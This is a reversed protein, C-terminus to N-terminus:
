IRRSCTLSLRRMKSNKRGLTMSEKLPVKCLKILLHVLRQKMMLCKTTSSACTSASLYNSQVARKYRFSIRQNTGRGQKKSLKSAVSVQQCKLSIDIIIPLQSPLSHRTSMLVSRRLFISRFWMSLTVANKTFPTRQSLRTSKSALKIPATSQIQNSPKFQAGHLGKALLRIRSRLRYYNVNM